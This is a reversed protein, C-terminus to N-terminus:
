PGTTPAIGPEDLQTIAMDDVAVVPMPLADVDLTAARAFLEDDVDLGAPEFILDVLMRGDYAKVLWGEPPRAPRMGAAAKKVTALMEDFTAGTSTM